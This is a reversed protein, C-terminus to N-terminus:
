PKLKPSSIWYNQLRTPLYHMIETLVGLHPSVIASLIML